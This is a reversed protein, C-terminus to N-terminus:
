LKEEQEQIYREITEASVNGASGVFYSSTWKIRDDYLKNYRRASIGKFYNIAKAPSIRPPCSCFLHIHDGMIEMELVEFGKQEAIEELLERLREARKGKLVPKRYKPIWVFHYNLNYKANRTSKTNDEM